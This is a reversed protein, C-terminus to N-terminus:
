CPRQSSKVCFKPPSLKIGLGRSQTNPLGVVEQDLASCALRGRQCHNTYLLFLTQPYCYLMNMEFQNEAGLVKLQNVLRMSSYINTVPVGCHHPVLSDDANNNNLGTPMRYVAHLIPATHDRWNEAPEIFFSDFSTRIHGTNGAPPPYRRRVGVVRELHCFCVVRESWPPPIETESWSSKSNLTALRQHLSM